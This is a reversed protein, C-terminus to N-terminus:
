FPPPPLTASPAPTVHPAITLTFITTGASKVLASGTTVEGDVEASVKATGETVGGFTASGASTAQTATGVSVIGDVSRQAADRLQVVLVRSGAAPTATTTPRPTATPDVSPGSGGGGCGLLAVPLALAFAACFFHLKRM